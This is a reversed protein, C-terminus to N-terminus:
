GLREISIFTDLEGVDAYDTTFSLRGAAVHRALLEDLGPEHFPVEGRNLLEVKDPDVDLGRVEHGIEAMAAAHTAGLYGCGIVSVRM